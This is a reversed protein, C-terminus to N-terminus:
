HKGLLELVKSFNGLEETEEAIFYHKNNDPKDYSEKWSALM